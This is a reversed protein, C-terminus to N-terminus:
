EIAMKTSRHHDHISFISPIIGAQCPAPCLGVQITQSSDQLHLLGSNMGVWYTFSLELAPRFSVQKTTGTWEKYGTQSNSCIHMNQIQNIRPGQSVRNPWTPLTLYYYMHFHDTTSSPDTPTLLQQTSTEAELYIHISFIGNTLLLPVYTSYQIYRVTLLLFVM